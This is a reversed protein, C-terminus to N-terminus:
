QKAFDQTWYHDYTANVNYYYGVGLHKFTANMINNCHGTSAMWGAVAADATAYGASINEGAATWTYGAKTIRQSFSSGDSSTHSFFNKVGMDKSHKRAACRLRTDLTLAPVAPKSVGGCVAGAARKQNVLTLVNNEFTVWGANWNLIDDCWVVLESAAEGTEEEALDVDAEGAQMEEDAEDGPEAGHCGALVFVATLAFCSLATISRM